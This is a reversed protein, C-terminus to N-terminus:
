ALDNLLSVALLLGILVLVIGAIHNLRRLGEETFRSRLLNFMTSLFFGWSSAGCLVGVVLLLARLFGGGLGGIGFAAFLAAFAIITFPNTLTLFITSTYYRVIRNVSLPRTKPVPRKLYTRIGLLCLFLAGVVQLQTEYLVLLDAVFSLGFVAIAAYLTDGTAMGFWSTLGALRGRTLTRQICLISIPGIPITVIVGVLFGKLFFTLALLDRLM